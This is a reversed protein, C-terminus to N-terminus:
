LMITMCQIFAQVLCCECCLRAVHGGSMVPNLTDALNVIAWLSIYAWIVLRAHETLWCFRVGRRFASLRQMYTRFETASNDYLQQALKGVAALRTTPEFTTQIAGVPIHHLLEKRERSLSGLRAYFLRRLHMM